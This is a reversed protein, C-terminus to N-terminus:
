ASNPRATAKWSRHLPSCTRCLGTLCARGGDSTTVDRGRRPSEKATGRRSSPSYPASTSRNALDPTLEAKNSTMMVITRRPDIEVPPMYPIRASYRDETLFSEIAPSGVKGRINDLAIFPSGSILAANFTEELSGVCGRRQTVSKATERYIATTIKNRYGKGAQSQDAEALDVPTRGRLLRGLVLGPTIMAALARSRDGATAFRFDVLLNCLLHRADGLPVDPAPKGGALIESERDYDTVQVPKGSREILVPCRAVVRIPPLAQQFPESHILIKATQENCTTPIHESEGDKVVVKVLRAVQEFVAPMSAPKLPQLRRAGYEDQALKVVAGGRLFHRGTAALLKGFQQASDIVRQSGGPLIAVPLANVDSTGTPSFPVVRAKTNLIRPERPAGVNTAAARPMNGRDRREQSGSMAPGGMGTPVPLAGRGM